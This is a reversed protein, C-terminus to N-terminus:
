ASVEKPFSSASIYLLFLTAIYLELILLTPDLDLLLEFLPHTTYGMFPVSNAPVFSNVYTNILPSSTANAQSIDFPTNYNIRM